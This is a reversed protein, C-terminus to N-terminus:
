EGFQDQFTSVGALAILGGEDPPLHQAAVFAKLAGETIIARGTNTIREPNQIHVPSGSSTGLPYSRSSLWQYRSDKESKLIDRRIQLGQILGQRDLVPVFFGSPVKVMRWGTSDKYFGPAGALDLGSLSEVICAAEEETPTSKFRGRAISLEDLGRSELNERHSTFLPLSRLVTQYVLDRKPRDVPTRKTEPRVVRLSPRPSPNTESLIFTMGGDRGEKGDSRGAERWRRCYCRSGDRTAACNDKHGCIPCKIRLRHVSVLLSYNM